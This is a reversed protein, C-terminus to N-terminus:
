GLAPYLLMASSTLFALDLNRATLSPLEVERLAPRSPARLLRAKASAAVLRAREGQRTRREVGPRGKKRM